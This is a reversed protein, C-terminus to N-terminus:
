QQRRANLRELAQMVELHQRDSRVREQQKWEVFQERTVYHSLDERNQNRSQQMGRDILQYIHEIARDRFGYVTVTASITGVIASALLSIALTVPLTLRTNENVSM